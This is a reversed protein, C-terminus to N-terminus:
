IFIVFFMFIWIFICVYVCEQMNSVGLRIGSWFPFNHFYGFTWPKLELKDLFQLYFLSFMWSVMIFILYNKCTSLIIFSYTCSNLPSHNNLIIEIYSAHPKNFYKEYTWYYQLSFYFASIFMGYRQKLKNQIFNWTNQM